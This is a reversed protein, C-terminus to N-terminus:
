TTPLNYAIAGFVPQEIADMEKDLRLEELEVRSSLDWHGSGVAKFRDDRSLYSGLTALPDKGGVHIGRAEISALIETRHMPRGEKKLIDEASNTFAAKFTDRAIVEESFGTSQEFVRISIHLAEVQKDIEQKQKELQRVKARLDQLTSQYSM